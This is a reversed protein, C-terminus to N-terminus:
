QFNTGHHHLTDELNFLAEHTDDIVHGVPPYVRPPKPTRQPWPVCNPDTRAGEMDQPM